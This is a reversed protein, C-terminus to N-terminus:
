KSMEAVLEEHMTRIEGSAGMMCGSVSIGPLTSAGNKKWDSLAYRLAAKLEEFDKLPRGAFSLDGQENCEVHLSPLDGPASEPGPLEYCAIPWFASSPTEEILKCGLVYRKNKLQSAFVELLGCDLLNDESSKRGSFVNILLSIDKDKLKDYVAKPFKLGEFRAVRQDSSLEINKNLVPLMGMEDMDKEDAPIGSFYAAVIITEKQNGLTKAAAESSSVEIEFTPIVVQDGDATYPEAIETEATAQAPGKKCSFILPFVAMGILLFIAPAMMHKKPASPTHTM